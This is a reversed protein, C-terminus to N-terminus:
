CLKELSKQAAQQLSRMLEEFDLPKPHYGHIGLVKAQEFDLAACHGTIILVPLEPAVRRIQHLVDVGSLGPMRMDLLVVDPTKQSFQELGEQGSLAVRAEMGRLELRGALTHAFDDEDDVILISLGQLAEPTM